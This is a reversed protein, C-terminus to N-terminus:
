VGFGAKVATTLLSKWGVGTSFIACFQLFRPQGPDFARKYVAPFILLGTVLAFGVWSTWQGPDIAWKQTAQFQALSPQVAIGLVLALYQPFVRLNQSEGFGRAVGRQNSQLDFYQIVRNITIAM